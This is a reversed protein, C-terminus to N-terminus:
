PSPSCAETSRPSMSYGRELPEFGIHKYFAESEPVSSFVLRTHVLDPHNKVCEMLREGLGKGRYSLALFLDCVWSVFKRDTVSRVFGIQKEGDFLGFCLSNAFAQEISERSAGKRWASQLSTVVFDMDFQSLDTTVTFNDRKWKTKMAEGGAIQIM